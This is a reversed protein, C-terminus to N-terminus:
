EGGLQQEIIEEQREIFDIGSQRDELEQWLQRKRTLLLAKREALTSDGQRYLASYKRLERRTCGCRELGILVQLLNVQWPELLRYGQRNRRVHPIFGSNCFSRIKWIPVELQEAAVTLTIIGTQDM